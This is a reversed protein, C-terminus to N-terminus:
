MPRMAEKLIEELKNIRAQRSKTQWSGPPSDYVADVTEPPSDTEHARATTISALVLKDFVGDFFAPIDVVTDGSNGVVSIVVDKGGTVIGTVREAVNDTNTQSLPKTLAQLMM